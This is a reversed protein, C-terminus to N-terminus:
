SGTAQGCRGIAVLKGGSMVRVDVLSVTRGKKVVLAYAELRPGAAPRLYDVRINMTPVPRGIAASCAFTAASDILTALAGGHSQPAGDFRSANGDASCVLTLTGQEADFESVEFGLWRHIPTIDLMAQLGERSSLDFESLDAAM